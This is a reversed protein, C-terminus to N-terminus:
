TATVVHACHSLFIIFFYCCYYIISIINNNLWYTLFCVNKEWHRQPGIYAM